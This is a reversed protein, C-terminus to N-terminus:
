TTGHQLIRTACPGIPAGYRSQLELDSPLLRLATGLWHWTTGGVQRLYTSRFPDPGDQRIYSDGITAPSEAYPAM